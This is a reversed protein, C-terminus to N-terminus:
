DWWLFLYKTRRLERALLRVGMESGSADMAEGMISRLAEPIEGSFAQELNGLQEKLHAKIAPSVEPCLRRAEAFAAAENRERMLGVGQEVSDPCFLYVEEAFACIKEPLTRFELAVWSTSAGVIDFSCLSEWARLRALIDETSIGYNAGDSGKMRVIAYPDTTRLIVVEDSEKMGNEEVRESWFARYGRAVLQAQVKTMLREAADGENVAISLGAGPAVEGDPGVATARAVAGHSAAMECIDLEFGLDRALAAPELDERSMRV